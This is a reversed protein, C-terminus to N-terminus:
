SFPSLKQTSFGTSEITVTYTGIPLFRLTYVGSGNTEAITKVGTSVNEATVKAASVVAGSPDNVQGTISGTVTQGLASAACLVAFLTSLALARLSNARMFNRMSELFPRVSSKACM